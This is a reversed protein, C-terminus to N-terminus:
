LENVGSRVARTIDFQLRALPNKDFGCYQGNVYITTNLNNAPFVLIMSRGALSDPVQVRTRYWLRHAFILDERRNKDGPVEIATWRPAAPFDRIPAAVEGPIQEDHRCVEWTGGLPLCVRAEPAAAAPLPFVQKAAERDRDTQHEEGPKYFQYPQFEGALCVCDLAFLIRQPKGQADKTKPLRFSLTHRGAALPQKGLKLWAVETWFSLEMLDTTLEEPSVAKWEGGDIRWDFPARVFEYGIRAWVEYEGATKADWAYDLLVGEAPTEREVQGADIAVKFWGKESLFEPRGVGEPKPQYNARTPQEGELWVFDAAAALSCLNLAFLAILTIIWCRLIRFASQAFQFHGPIM